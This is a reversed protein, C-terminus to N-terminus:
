FDMKKEHHTFLIMDRIIKQEKWPLLYKEGFIKLIRKKDKPKLLKVIALQITSKKNYIRFTSQLASITDQHRGGGDNDETILEEM